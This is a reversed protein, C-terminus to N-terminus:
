LLRKAQETAEILRSRISPNRVSHGGDAVIVYDAEPWMKHLGYATEIPCLVDYRGQIITSPISRIRSINRAIMDYLDRPAHKFYHAEIKAMAHASM